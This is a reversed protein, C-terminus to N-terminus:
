LKHPDLVINANVHTRTALTIFAAVCSEVKVGERSSKRESIRKNKTEEGRGEEANSRMKVGGVSGM